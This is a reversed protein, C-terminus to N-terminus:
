GALARLAEKQADTLDDPIHVNIEVYLDGAGKNTRVGQERLRLKEGPQTGPPINLKIRKGQATRIHREAGLMAEFASITEALYLDNGERRFRPHPEVQFTVYLDGQRGGPGKNGRGRLRIKLGSHAGKPIRLRVREGGPLEVETREGRLAQDFSVRLRTQVDLDAGRRSRPQGGMPGGAEAGGSFFRSFFEGMGGGVDGGLDGFADDRQQNFRVYTGDSARYFDNGGGGANFGGGGFDGFPNKRRADYQKRKEPDSLVDNAEQVEKFREEAEPDDPNRDPHYKQALKRYAKKIAAADADESVGLVEYHDKTEPM